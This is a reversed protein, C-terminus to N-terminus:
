TFAGRRAMWTLSAGDPGVDVRQASPEFQWDALSVTDRGLVLRYALFSSPEPIMQAVGADGGAFSAYELM